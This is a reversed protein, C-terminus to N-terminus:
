SAAKVSENPAVWVLFGESEGPDEDTDTPDLSTACPSAVSCFVRGVPVWSEADTPSEADFDAYREFIAKTDDSDSGANLVALACSRFLPYLGQAGPDLLKDIEAQSLNEMSGRPGVRADVADPLIISTEM